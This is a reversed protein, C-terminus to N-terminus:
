HRKKRGLALGILGIALIPMTTPEPISNRVLMTSYGKSEYERLYDLNDFDQLKVFDDVNFTTWAGTYEYKTVASLGDTGNFLGYSQNSEDDESAYDQSNYSMSANVESLASGVQGKGDRVELQGVGYRNPAEYESGLDLFANAWMTYVQEKSALAWGHYLGGEGLQSAVYNFNHSNNIGFDMWELGTSEDIFSNSNTDTIVGAQTSLSAFFLISTLTTRLQTFQM